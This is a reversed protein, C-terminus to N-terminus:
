FVFFSFLVGAVDGGGSHGRDESFNCREMTSQTAMTVEEQSSQLTVQELSSKGRLAPM